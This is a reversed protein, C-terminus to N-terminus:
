RFITRSFFSTDPVYTRPFRRLAGGFCREQCRKSGALSWARFFPKGNRVAVEVSAGPCLDARPPTPTARTGPLKTASEGGEAFWRFLLGRAREFGEPWDSSLLAESPVIRAALLGFRRGRLKSGGGARAPPIITREVSGAVGWWPSRGVRSLGAERDVLSKGADPSTLLPM